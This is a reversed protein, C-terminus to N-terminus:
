ASEIRERVARMEKVDTKLLEDLTEIGDQMQRAFQIWDKMIYPDVESRLLPRGSASRFAAPARSPQPPSSPRRQQTMMAVRSVEESLFPRLDRLLQGFQGPARLHQRLQEVRSSLLSEEGNSSGHHRLLEMKRLVAYWRHRLMLEAQEVERQRQVNAADMAAVTDVDQLLEQVKTQLVKVAAKQKETRQLLEQSFHLPSPYLRGPDPNKQLAQMYAEDSCGGGNLYATYREKQIADMVQGPGCSNYVFATFHCKPHLANYSQDLQVLYSALASQRTFDQLTVTPPQPPQQFQQSAAMMPPPQPGFGFGQTATGSQQQQPPMGFGGGFGGGTNATGFGTTTPAASAGFGGATTGFGGGGGGGGFGGTAAGFGTPATNATANTAAPGFSPAAATPATSPAGFGRPAGFGGVSTVTNTTTNSVTGFGGTPATAAGFM